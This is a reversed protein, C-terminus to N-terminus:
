RGSTGLPTRLTFILQADHSLRMRAADDGLEIEIEALFKPYGWMFRGAHTTFEQDVPMAVVFHGARKRLIDLGGLLPLGRDGPAYAPVSIVAENYNGLPSDRYEVAMLVLASTGPWIEAIRLQTGALLARAARAPVAFVQALLTSDAIRLPLRLERGDIVFRDDQLRRCVADTARAGSPGLVPERALDVM